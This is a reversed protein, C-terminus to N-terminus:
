RVTREVATQAGFLVTAAPGSPELWAATRAPRTLTAAFHDRLVGELWRQQARAAPRQGPACGPAAPDADDLGLRVLTRNYFNHNAGTVTLKVARSRRGPKAAAAYYAAGADGTDGDCTGLAVTLPVDPLPQPRFAPALLFLSRVTARGRSWRVANLGGRSHGVVGIRTLNVRGELSDPLPSSGGRGARRIEALTADVIQGFRLKELAGAEGWGGTYAANIDPVVAIMGGRALATALYGLGQDSRRERSFCPWVDTDLEGAPCNDGHAGHAIVVVPFPGAGAPVALTGWLRIPMSALRGSLPQPFGRVGLDYHRTVASAPAASGVGAGALAVVGLAAPTLVRLIGRRRPATTTM